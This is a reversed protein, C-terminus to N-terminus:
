RMRNGKEEVEREEQEEDECVRKMLCVHGDENVEENRRERM